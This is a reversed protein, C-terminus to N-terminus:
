KTKGLLLCTTQSSWKKTFSSIHEPWTQLPERIKDSAELEAATAEQCSISPFAGPSRPTTITRSSSHFWRLWPRALAGRLETSYKIVGRDGCSGSGSPSSPPRRPHSRRTRSGWPRPRRGEAARRPAPRSGRPSWRPRARGRPAPAPSPPRLPRPTWGSAPGWPPPSPGRRPPGTGRAPGPGDSGGRAGGRARGAACPRPAARGRRPPRRPARRCGPGPGTQASLRPPNAASPAERWGWGEPWLKNGACAQHADRLAKQVTILTYNPFRTLSDYRICGDKKSHPQSAKDVRIDSVHCKDMHCHGSPTLM